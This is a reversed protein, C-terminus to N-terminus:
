ERSLHPAARFATGTTDTAVCWPRITYAHICHLGPVNPATSMSSAWALLIVGIITAQTSDGLFFSVVATTALLGLLASRLQRGLVAIASVRHTRLSNPGYRILRASADVSSLGDASSDLWRLVDDLPNLGGACRHAAACDRVDRQRTSWGPDPEDGVM